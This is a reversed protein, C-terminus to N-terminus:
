DVDKVHDEKTKSFIIFDDVHVYCIKSIGDRLADDIVRQFISPANKLVFALRYFEYKSNNISFATKERDKEALEIQHDLDLTTFFKSMNSLITSM